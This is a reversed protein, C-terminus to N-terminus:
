ELLSALMALAICEQGFFQGVVHQRKRRLDPEQHYMREFVKTGIAKGAFFGLAAIGGLTAVPKNKVYYRWDTAQKLARKREDFESDITSRVSRVNHTLMDRKRDIQDQLQERSM